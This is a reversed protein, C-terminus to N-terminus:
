WRSSRWWRWRCSTRRRISRCRPCRRRISPSTPRRRGHRHHLRRAQGQRRLGPRHQRRRGAQQRDRLGVQNGAHDKRRHPPHRHRDRRRATYPVVFRIPKDPWTDAQATGRGTRRAAFAACGVVIRRKLNMTNGSFPAGPLAAAMAQFQCRSLQAFESLAEIEAPSYGLEGCCNSPQARGAPASGPARGSAPRGAHVAVAAGHHRPRRAAHARALGGTASLHPDDFLDEPRTIPRSRCPM